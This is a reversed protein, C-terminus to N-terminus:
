SEQMAMLEDFSTVKSEIKCEKLFWEVINDETSLATPEDLRKADEYFWKKAKETDDFNASFEEVKTKIQEESAGVGGDDAATNLIDIEANLANIAEALKEKRWNNQVNQIAKHIKIMAKYLKM